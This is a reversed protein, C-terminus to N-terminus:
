RSERAGRWPSSSATRNRGSACGPNGGVAFLEGAETRALAAMLVWDGMHRVEEVTSQAPPITLATSLKSFHSQLKSGCYTMVLRNKPRTMAVYLLRMEESLDEKRIRDIIAQQGVTPYLLSRETEFVKAAIGLVPDTLVMAKSDEDNFQKGMDALFVVPFELGKSKHISMLQVADSSPEAETSYGKEGVVELYRLFAPLGHRQATEFGDALSFFADLNSIRQAGGEM